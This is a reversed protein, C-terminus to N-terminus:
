YFIHLGEFLQCSGWKFCVVSLCLLSALILVEFIFEIPPCIQQLCTKVDYAAM